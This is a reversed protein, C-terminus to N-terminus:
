VRIRDERILRPFALISQSMRSRRRAARGIRPSAGRCTSCANPRRWAAPDELEALSPLADPGSWVRNLAEIGGEGVVADCFRKGVEYQRLKLEIGLLRGLLRAPASQSARRRDMAARLAPLTALEEKGVVDMVHEAYGEIVAM